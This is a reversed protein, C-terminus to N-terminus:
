NVAANKARERAAQKRRRAQDRKYAAREEPTMSSLNANPATRVKRRGNNRATKGIDTKYYSNIDRYARIRGQPTSFDWTRSLWDDSVGGAEQWAELVKLLRASEAYAARMTQEAEVTVPAKDGFEGRLIALRERADAAVRVAHDYQHDPRDSKPGVTPRLRWVVGEIDVEDGRRPATGFPMEDWVGREDAVFRAQHKVPDAPPIAGASHTYELNM